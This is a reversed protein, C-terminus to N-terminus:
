NNENKTPEKYNMVYNLLRDVADQAINSAMTDFEGQMKLLQASSLSDSVSTQEVLQELDVYYQKKAVSIRNPFELM